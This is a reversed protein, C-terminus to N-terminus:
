RRWGDPADRPHHGDLGRPGQGGDRGLVCLRRDGGRHRARDLGPASRNRLRGHDRDPRGGRVGALQEAAVRRGDGGARQVPQPRRRHARAAQRRFGALGHLRRFLGPGDSLLRPRQDHLLRDERAADLHRHRHFDPRRALRPRRGQRALGEARRDRGPRDALVAPLRARRHDGPQRAHLDRRGRDGDPRARGPSTIRPRQPRVTPSFDTTMQSGPIVIIIGSLVIFLPWSNHFNLGFLHNQAVLLWCGIGILWIGGTAGGRRRHRRRGERAPDLGNCGTVFVSRKFVMSAGIAIMVFPGIMGASM